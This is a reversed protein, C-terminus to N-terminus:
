EGADIRKQNEEGEKELKYRTCSVSGCQTCAYDTHQGM